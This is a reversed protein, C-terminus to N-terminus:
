PAGRLKEKTVAKANEIDLLSQMESLIEKLVMNEAHEHNARRHADATQEEIQHIIQLDKNKAEDSREQLAALHRAMHENSKKLGDTDREFSESMHMLSKRLATRRDNLEALHQRDWRLEIENRVYEEKLDGYGQLQRQLGTRQMELATISPEYNIKWRLLLVCLCLTLLLLKSSLMTTDSVITYSLIFFVLLIVEGEIDEISRTCLASQSLLGYSVASVIVFVM